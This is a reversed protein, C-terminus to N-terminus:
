YARSYTDNMGTNEDAIGCTMSKFIRHPFLVFALEHYPTILLKGTELMYENGKWEGGKETEREFRGRVKHEQTAEKKRKEEYTTKETKKKM